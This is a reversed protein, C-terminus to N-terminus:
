GFVAPLRSMLVDFFILKSAHPCGEGDIFINCHEEVPQLLLTARGELAQDVFRQSTAQPGHRLLRPPLTTEMGLRHIEALTQKRTQVVDAINQRDQFAFVM